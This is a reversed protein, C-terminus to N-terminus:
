FPFRAHPVMGAWSLYINDIVLNGCLRDLDPVVRIGHRRFHIPISNRSLQDAYINHESPIYRASLKLFYKYKLLEIAAVLAGVYPNPPRRRKLWAVVNTNDSFLVVYRGPSRAAFM